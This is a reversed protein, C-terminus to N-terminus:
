RGRKRSLFVSINGPRYNSIILDPMKDRNLDALVAYEPRRGATLKLSEDERFGGKGDGLLIFPHPSGMVGLALDVNGDGDLDAADFGLGVGSTRLPSNAAPTFSGKGDNLLITLLGEDDHTALVDPRGDNNVDASGVYIPRASVPFVSGPAEAFGGKGDGRLVSIKNGHINPMALDPKGDSDFDRLVLADYPGRRTQVPSGPAPAFRGKGDGLLVSVTNDNVNTTLIDPAGDVNVDGQIVEHTHAQPGDATKVPSGPAESFGGRGDGLLVTVFYSNHEAAVVDLRGDRNVDGLAVKRV